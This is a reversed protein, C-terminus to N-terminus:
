PKKTLNQIVKYTPLIPTVKRSVVPFMTKMTQILTQFQITRRSQDIQYIEQNTEVLLVINREPTNNTLPSVQKIEQSKSSLIADDEDYRTANRIGYQKIYTSSVLKQNVESSGIRGEKRHHHDIM